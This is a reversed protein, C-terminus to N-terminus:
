VHARGIKGGASHEVGGGARVGPGGARDRSGSSSSSTSSSSGCGGTFAAHPPPVSLALPYPLPEYRLAISELTVVRFARSGASSSSSNYSGGAGSNGEFVGATSTANGDALDTAEKKTDKAAGTAANAAAADADAHPGGSAAAGAAWAQMIRGLQELWTLTLHGRDTSITVGRACVSLLSQEEQIGVGDEGKRQELRPLQRQRGTHRM